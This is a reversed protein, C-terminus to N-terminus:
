LLLQKVDETLSCAEDGIPTATTVLRKGKAAAEESARAQLLAVHQMAHEACAEFYFPGNEVTNTVYRTCGNVKCLEGTHTDTLLITM